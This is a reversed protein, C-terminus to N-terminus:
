FKINKTHKQYSDIVRYLSIVGMAGTKLFVIDGNKLNTINKM